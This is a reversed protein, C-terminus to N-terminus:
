YDFIYDTVAGFQSSTNFSIYVGLYNIFGLQLWTYFAYIFVFILNITNRLWRRKTLSSLFTVILSLIFSSIFIRLTAYSFLEFSSIARFLIEILFVVLTITILNKLYKDEFVSKKM